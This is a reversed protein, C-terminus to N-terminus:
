SPEGTRTPSTPCTLRHPHHGPDPQHEPMSRATVTVTAGAARLRDAIAAGAGKTGGTVLARRGDLSEDAM